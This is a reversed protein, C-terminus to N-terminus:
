KDDRQLIPATPLPNPMEYEPEAAKKAEAKTIEAQTAAQEAARADKAAEANAKQQAIQALFEEAPINSSQAEVVSKSTPQQPSMANRGNKLLAAVQAGGTGTGNGAGQGSQDSSTGADQGKATTNVAPTSQTAAFGIESAVGSIPQPAYPSVFSIATM